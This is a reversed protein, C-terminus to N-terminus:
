SKAAQRCGFDEILALYVLRAPQNELSEPHDAIYKKVARPAVLTWNETPPCIVNAIALGDATGWIFGNCSDFVLDKKQRGCLEVFHSTSASTMVVGQKESAGSALSALISLLHLMM